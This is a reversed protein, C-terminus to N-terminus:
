HANGTRATKGAATEDAIMSRIAHLQDRIVGIRLQDGGAVEACLWGDYGIAALQAAMRRWNVDGHTLEADLAGWPGPGWTAVLEEHRGYRTAPSMALDNSFDKIDLRTIRSGLVEVWHEPWGYRMANGIDFHVGFPPCGLDDVLDALDRPSLLWGNWLNEIGLRVGASTAEDALPLLSSGVRIRCEKLEVDPKAFGPSLMLAGAGVEQAFALNRRIAEVVVARDEADPSTLSHSFSEAVILTAIRL